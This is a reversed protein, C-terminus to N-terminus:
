MAHELDSDPQQVPAKSWHTALLDSILAEPLPRGFLFGQIQTKQLEAAIVGLQDQTEIGELVVVLGLEQAMRTIGRVLILSEPKQAIQSIFSRDVKLKDIPLQNLYNLSSYGTGFDDLSIKVGLEQLEELIRCTAELDQLLATETVELELRRAPLGSNKLAQKVVSVVDHRHLQVASLNVAVSVQGPWTMCKACATELVYVGLDNILGTAEAIPVFIAPSINGMEAHAWRVLAECVVIRNTSTDFIPQYSVTLDKNKVADRLENELRLRKHFSEEMEAEFFCIQGDPNSKARYLALDANQILKAPDCIDPTALAIGISVGIEIHHKDIRSPTSITQVVKSAVAEADDESKIDPLLVVFEDGGFRCLNGDKGILKELKNSVDKLVKDGIIHGLTDNIQKFRDLDLVLVASLDGALRSSLINQMEQLFYARNALGTLADYRAMYRIKRDAIVRQSMDKFLVVSGGDAKPQFDVEYTRDGPLKITLKGCEDRKRMRELAKLSRNLDATPVSESQLCNKLLSYGTINESQFKTFGKFLTGMMPNSVVLKGDPAFMCLGTPMNTIAADFEDALTATEKQSILANLLANRQRAAMKRLGTLFPIFGLALYIYYPNATALFGLMFPIGIFYVQADVLKKHAFNRGYVGIMCGFIAVSSVLHITQDDSVVLSVFGWCGLLGAFVSTGYFYRSEWKRIVSPDTKLDIARIFLSADAYRYFGICIFLASFIAQSIQGSEYYCVAASLGLGIIGVLM